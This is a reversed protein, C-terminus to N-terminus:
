IDWIFACGSYGMDGISRVFGYYGWNAIFLILISLKEINKLHNYAFISGYLIPTLYLTWQCIRSYIEIDGGVTKIILASFSFWFIININPNNKMAKYGYWIVVVDTLFKTVKYAISVTIKKSGIVLAISGDESFWREANNIYNAGALDNTMNVKNLMDTVFSFWNPNWFLYLVIYIALLIWPKEMKNEIKTFLFVLFFVIPIFSSFHIGLSIIFYIIVWNKKNNYYSYLGLLFFSTAFFQRILNETEPIMLLFLPLAWVATEKFKRVVLLYAFFLIFSYFVFGYAFHLGTFHFFDLWLLYIEDHYETFLNGELDQKYHYYDQGRMYRLGQILSYFVLAPIAWRWFNKDSSHKTIGWGCITLVAVLFIRLSWYVYIDGIIFANM